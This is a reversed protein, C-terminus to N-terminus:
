GVKKIDTKNLREELVVMKLLNNFPAIAVDFKIFSNQLPPNADSNLAETNFSFM